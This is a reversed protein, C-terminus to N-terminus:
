FCIFYSALPTKKKKSKTKTEFKAMTHTYTIKTEAIDNCGFLLNPLITVNPQGFHEDSLFLFSAVCHMLTALSIESTRKRKAQIITNSHIARKDVVFLFVYVCLLSLPPFIPNTGILVFTSNSLMLLLLPLRHRASICKDFYKFHVMTGHRFSTISGSLLM